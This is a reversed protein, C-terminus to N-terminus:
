REDKDNGLLHGMGHIILEDIVNDVLKNEERAEEVAQPYSIVIDGLRLVDDPPDVFAVSSKGEATLPFSLVDTTEDLQRYKKNLKRMMRDGVISLSVETSSRVRREKLYKEIIERVRNRDIRYHSDTKIFINVMSM